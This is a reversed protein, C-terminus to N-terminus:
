LRMHEIWNGTQTSIPAYMYATEKARQKRRALSQYAARARFCITFESQSQERRAEMAVEVAKPCTHYILTSDNEALFCRSGPKLCVGSPGVQWICRPSYQSLACKEVCRRSAVARMKTGGVAHGDGVRSIATSGFNFLRTERQPGHPLFFRSLLRSIHSLGV